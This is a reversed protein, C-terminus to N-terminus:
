EEKQQLKKRVSPGIEVLMLIGALFLFFALKVHLPQIFLVFEGVWPVKIGLYKGVIASEDVEWWDQFGNNDGWTKFSYTGDGNDIRAVARHIILETSSGPEDFVIIDGPTESDKTGIQIDSVNEIGEILILDGKYM